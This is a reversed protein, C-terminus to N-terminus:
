LGAPQTTRTKLWEDVGGVQYVIKGGVKTYAPGQGAARWRRLTQEGVDLHAALERCTYYGIM